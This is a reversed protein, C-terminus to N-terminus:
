IHADQRVSGVRPGVFWWRRRIRLAPFAAPRNHVALFTMDNGTDNVMVLWSWDPPGDVIDFAFGWWGGNMDDALLCTGLRTGYTDALLRASELAEDLTM